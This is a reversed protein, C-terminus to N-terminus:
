ATGGENGIAEGMEARWLALMTQLEAEYDFAPDDRERVRDLVEFSFSEPGHEAWAQMLSLDRHTKQALEFRIRNLMGDVQRSAGIWVRGTANCRVAYVGMRPFAQKYARTRERRAQPSLIVDNM